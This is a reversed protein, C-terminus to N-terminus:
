IAGIYDEDERNNYQDNLVKIATTATQALCLRM